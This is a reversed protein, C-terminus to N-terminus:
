PVSVNRAVRQWVESESNADDAALSALGDARYTLVRKDPRYLSWQEEENAEHPWMTLTAGLDFSLATQGSVTDLTFGTLKQGDMVRAAAEIQAHPSGDNALAEGSIMVRWQCCFIFLNWEGVPRVLRRAALQRLRASSSNSVYPERISLRPVGFEFSLISGQGREVQWCPLGILPAVTTAIANDMLGIIVDHMLDAFEGAGFKRAFSREPM